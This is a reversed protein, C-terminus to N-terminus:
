QCLLLFITGSEFTEEGNPPECGAINWLNWYGRKYNRGDTSLHEHMGTNTYTDRPIHPSTLAHMHIDTDRCADSQTDTHAHTHNCMIYNFNYDLYHTHQKKSNKSPM